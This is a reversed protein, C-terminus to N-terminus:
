TGAPPCSPPSQEMPVPSWVPVRGHELEAIIDRGSQALVFVPDISAIARGYQVMALLAMDHAAQDDFGMVSQATRVADAFPGGGPVLVIAGASRRLVALWPRLEASLAYSGGLKVVALPARKAMESPRRPNSTGPQRIFIMCARSRPRVNGPSRWAWAARDWTLSKWGSRSRVVRDRSLVLAAIREALSELLAIHENAVLVRIGDSILDYSVVDRMDQVARSARRVYADVNFRVRQASVRERAYAGIRVPLVLDHVFIRDTAATAPHQSYGRAALLSYDIPSADRGGRRRPDLAILGRVLELRGRDLAASRDHGSCLASRFGLVDPELLLLRPVDPPELSGALGASLGLARCEAVFGRLRAVDMYDMLRGAGKSWTDLMAGAFGAERMQLLLDGETELDAFLVGILDVSKALSGLAAVCESRCAHPM